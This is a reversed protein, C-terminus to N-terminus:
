VFVAEERVQGMQASNETETEGRDNDRSGCGCGLLDHTDCLTDERLSFLNKLEEQSFSVEWKKKMPCPCESPMGLGFGPPESEHFDMVTNLGQKTVQRQFIKEEISGQVCLIIYSCVICYM